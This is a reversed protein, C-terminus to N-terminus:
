KDWSADRIDFTKIRLANSVAFAGSIIMIFCGIVPSLAGLINGIVILLAIVFFISLILLNEKINRSLKHSLRIAGSVDLLSSRELSIDVSDSIHTDGVGIAIKMDSPLLAVDERLKSCLALMKGSDSLKKIADGKCVENVGAKSGVVGSAEADDSLLVASIGQNKIEEIAKISDSRVSYSVAIIGLFRQGKAFFVPYKGVDSLEKARMKAEAPVNAFGDITELNGCRLMIGDLEGEIGIGSIDNKNTLKDESEMVLDKTYKIIAKAVPNDRGSELMAATELLEDESLGGISYGSSSFHEATFVDTVTADGNTICDVMDLAIIEIKEASKLAKNDRFKIGNHAGVSNCAKIATNVSIFWACLCIIILLAIAIATKM